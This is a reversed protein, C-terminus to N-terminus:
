QRMQQGELPWWSLVQTQGSCCCLVAVAGGAASGAVKGVNGADRSVNGVVRGM